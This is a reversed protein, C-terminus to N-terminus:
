ALEMLLELRDHLESSWWWLWVLPSPPSGSAWLAAVFVCPWYSITEVAPSMDCRDGRGGSDGVRGLVVESSLDRVAARVLKTEDLSALTESGGDSEDASRLPTSWYEVRSGKAVAVANEGVACLSTILSSDLLTLKYFMIYDFLLLLVPFGGGGSPGEPNVVVGCCSCIHSLFSIIGLRSDYM